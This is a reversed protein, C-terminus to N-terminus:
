GSPLIAKEFLTYGYSTGLGRPGLLAMISTSKPSIRYKLSKKGSMENFSEIEIPAAFMREEAEKLILKKEQWRFMQWVGLSGCVSPFLYRLLFTRRRTVSMLWGPM